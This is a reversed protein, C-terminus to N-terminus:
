GPYDSVTLRPSDFKHRPSVMRTIPSVSNPRFENHAFGASVAHPPPLLFCSSSFSAEINGLHPTFVYFFYLSPKNGSNVFPYCVFQVSNLKWFNGEYPMTLICCLFSCSYYYYNGFLVSFPLFSLIFLLYKRKNIGTSHLM